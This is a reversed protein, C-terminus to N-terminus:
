PTGTLSARSTCGLRTDGTADPFLVCRFLHLIWARCYYTVTEENIVDSCQAFNQRLWNISVGTTRTGTAEPPLPRRLFDEVRDRWGNSRRHSIVPRVRVSVGLFKQTDELTVTM